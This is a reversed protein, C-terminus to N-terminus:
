GAVRRHAADDLQQRHAHRRHGNPQATAAPAASGLPERVPIGARRPYRDATPREKAVIVLRTTSDAAAEDGVIRAGLLAAARQGAALEEGLDLGKPFLAHGGVRLLPM